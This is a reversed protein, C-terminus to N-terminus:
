DPRSLILHISGAATVEEPYDDYHEDDYDRNDDDNDVDDDDGTEDDSEEEDDVNKAEVEPLQVMWLCKWDVFSCSWFWNDLGGCPTSSFSFYM